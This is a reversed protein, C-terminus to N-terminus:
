LGVRGTRNILLELNQDMATMARASAQYARQFRVMNTMEEDMSVGSVSQRRATAGDRLTTATDALRRSSAAADGLDRVLNAYGTDVTGGRLASVALAIDNAGAAGGTGPTLTGATANVALTAATAGTFFPPAGHVANVGSALQAALTDLDTRRAGIPGTPSAVQLLGGLEGGPATLAQPWTVTSGAVLPVAADGFQVSISGGGLDTVSVQAQASLSDLIEDRRDLLDNPTRGASIQQTIAADLQALEAAARAIPGTASTRDAYDQAAITQLQGFQADLTRLGAVLTEAHGIVAARASASEPNSALQSWADWFRSLSANLGTDGPEGLLEQATDLAQAMTEHQGASMTQARVQIDLFQDRIRRYEVIEVGQGLLAGAGGAVAGANILLSPAASMVAEQRTYGARDANAINHGTVDLARQQAMLGRLATNLGSFASIGAM